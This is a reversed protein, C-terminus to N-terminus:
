LGISLGVHVSRVAPYVYGMAEPDMEDISDICFLDVGRVYIKANTMKIKNLWASPLKYYVECNRLKLFSRDVMWVSSMMSQNNDVVETSLRPFRASPNKPTWRNEFAYQSISTNGVLPTYFNNSISATYNGVGQFYANFGLGKWELGVNFGYYIEPCNYNYGMAVVDNENIVNDGNVDKYKIDGPKVPGFQQPVSNAIDADDIFYGIAQLGWVQGIPKGTSRLYDYAQPSELQEILKSRNYSFNAGVRLQFDGIRKIYDLGLETGWSDVIGANVYSSAAGLVSSNRGAASVWIDSRREYFGDVTLTLGKLMSVDLGLNYKYAKETTGNLSPLRGEAWGGDGNFNEQIPYGSAGGVTTNWYGNSPINDTQIIGFSARLKMFDIINQKKMFNENSIVWALGLTPALGWRSDPDLRNSASTTLTFDAFYRNNYGYHTYWAANQTYWTVNVGNTNDYKYTYMLMSYLEHKGFRRTWDVNAQFNFSRYQWDLKANDGSVSSVSGGEFNSFEVPEGNEWKSVSQMGYKANVRYDEWYSAINDYGIRVAGGLGKTISSLDQHLTMDAYLARTHGKTYGHGQALYVPNFSGDWTANGGWLGKETKIPFAVSPVSYVKYMLNDGASSPRSFENLVGMINAQMRTKPALDIDLNTRFNAKSYKDQTSYGENSNANKIFGRNNQLNLMTFYRMKTSGGRFTLTAIDSAGQDRFVEDTWNMNPYLYPYKGSQFANLENQSYRASRGDNALAENVATAYTYADAMKPMRTQTNFSHDYSFKIERTKYKGRKTVINVVGNIGRYGYLAVAAADRLISVSEVEEPTIYNLAKWANDRELGDVVLLIGNNGNLTQQGRIYMSPIQEWVNGTKQLTTLGTVNGYLSNGINMASRNDIQDAYVTSVAGTSEANTQALGFGYNVKEASFGMVITMLKEDKVTVTKVADDGTKVKLVSGKDALIEFQGNKDTAVGILPANEIFVLAGEVPNGWKDIVKGIVNNDTQALGKLSVCALIALAIIKYKKM